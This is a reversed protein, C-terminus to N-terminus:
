WDSRFSTTLRRGPTYSINSIYVYSCTETTRGDDPETSPNFGMDYSIVRAVPHLCGLNLPTYSKNKASSRTILHTTIKRSVTRSNQLANIGIQPHDKRNKNTTARCQSAGFGNRM